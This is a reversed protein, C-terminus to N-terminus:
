AVPDTGVDFEAYTGRNGDNQASTCGSRRELDTGNWAGEIPATSAAGFTGRALPNDLALAPRLAALVAIAAAGLAKAAIGSIVDSGGIRFSGMMGEVSSARSVRAVFAARRGRPREPMSTAGSAKPALTKPHVTSSGVANTRRSAKTSWPKLRMSVASTYELHAVPLEPPSDSDTIPRQILREPFRSRTTMAVLTPMSIGPTPLPSEGPRMRAATSADSARRWTSRM